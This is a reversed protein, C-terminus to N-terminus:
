ATRGILVVAEDTAATASQTMMGLIHSAGGLLVSNTSNTSLGGLIVYTAGSNMVLSGQLLETSGINCKYLGFTIVPLPDGTSAAKVAIGWADGLATAPIVTIQGSASTGFKLLQSETITSGAIGIVTLGEAIRGEQTPWWDTAMNTEDGNNIRKKL